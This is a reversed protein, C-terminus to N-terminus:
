IDGQIDNLMFFKSSLFLQDKIFVHILIKINRYGKSFM